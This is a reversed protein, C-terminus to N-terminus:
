AAQNVVDHRTNLTDQSAHAVAGKTVEVLSDVPLVDLREEHPVGVGVGLDFLGKM